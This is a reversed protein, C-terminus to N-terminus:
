DGRDSGSRGVAARDPLADGATPLPDARDGIALRWRAGDVVWALEHRDVVMQRAARVRLRPGPRGMAMPEAVCM